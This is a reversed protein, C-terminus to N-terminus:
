SQWWSCCHCEQEWVQQPRPQPPRSPFTRAWPSPSCQPRQRSPSQPSSWSSATFSRWTKPRPSNNTHKEHDVCVIITFHKSTVCSQQPCFIIYICLVCVCVETCRLFNKSNKERMMIQQDSLVATQESLSDGLPGLCDFVAM